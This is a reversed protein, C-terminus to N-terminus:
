FKDWAKKFAERLETYAKGLGERMEEWADGSSSKLLKLKVKTKDYVPKMREMNEQYSQRAESGLKDARSKYTDLKSKIDKLGTEVTRTLEKKNMWKQVMSPHMAEAAEEMDKGPRFKVVKAAPIDIPQGTRPHRGKRGARTTVYFTGFGRLTIEQGAALAEQMAELAADLAREGAAKTELGSKEVIRDVLQEKSM